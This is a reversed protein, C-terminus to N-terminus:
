LMCISGGELWRYALPGINTEFTLVNVWSVFVAGDKTWGPVTYAQVTTKGWALHVQGTTPDTFVEGGGFYEGPGKTNQRVKCHSGTLFHVESLFAM